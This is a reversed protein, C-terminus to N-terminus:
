PAAEGHLTADARYVGSGAADRVVVACCWAEEACGGDRELGARVVDVLTAVAQDPVEETGTLETGHEDRIRSGRREIDFFFLPM